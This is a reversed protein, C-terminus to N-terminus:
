GKSSPVPASFFPNPQPLLKIAVPSFLPECGQFRLVPINMKLSQQLKAVLEALGPLHTLSGNVHGKVFNLRNNPGQHQSKLFDKVSETPIFDHVHCM